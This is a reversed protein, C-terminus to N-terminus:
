AGRVLSWELSLFSPTGPASQSGNRPRDKRRTAGTPSLMSVVPRQQPHFVPLNRHAMDNGDVDGERRYSAASRTLAPFGGPLELFTRLWEEKYRGFAAIEDWGDAGCIVALISLALIDLLKHDSRAQVRPDPVSGFPRYFM